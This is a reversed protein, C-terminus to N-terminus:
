IRIPIFFMMECEGCIVDLTTFSFLRYLEVENNSQLRELAKVLRRSHKDFVPVFKELTRFHFAPNIIKRRRIWKQAVFM